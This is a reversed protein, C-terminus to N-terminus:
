DADAVTQARQLLEDIVRRAEVLEDDADTAGAEAGAAFLADITWEDSAPEPASETLDILKNSQVGNRMRDRWQAYAAKHSDMPQSAASM